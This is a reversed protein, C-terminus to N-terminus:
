LLYRCSSSRLERLNRCSSASLKPKRTEITLPSVMDSFKNLKLDFGNKYLDRHYSEDVADIGGDCRSNDSLLQESCSNTAGCSPSSFSDKTTSTGDCSTDVNHKQTRRRQKNNLSRISQTHRQQKMSLSRQPESNQSPGVDLNSNDSDKTEGVVRRRRRRRQGLSSSRQKEKTKKEEEKSSGTTICNVINSNNKKKKVVMTLKRRSSSETKKKENKEMMSVVVSEDIPTM